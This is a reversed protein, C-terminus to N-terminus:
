VLVIGFRDSLYAMVLTRNPLSLISGYILVAAIKGTLPDSARDFAAGVTTGALGDAGANGTVAATTSSIYIKSSAGNLEYGLIQPTTVVDPTSLFAGAYIKHSVIDNYAEARGGVTSGDFFAGALVRNPINGVIFLTYPQPLSAAWSGSQVCQASSGLFSLTARNNYAADSANLTPRKADTTQRCNKNADGSGSQDVWTDVGSGVITLGIGADLWLLCGAVDTPQFPKSGVYGEASGFAQFGSPM